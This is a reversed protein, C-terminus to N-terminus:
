RRDRCCFNYFYDMESKQQLINSKNVQFCCYKPSTWLLYSLGFDFIVFIANPCAVDIKWKWPQFYDCNCWCCAVCSWLTAKRPVYWTLLPPCYLLSLSRSILLHKLINSSFTLSIISISTKTNKRVLECHINVIPVHGIETPLRIRRQKCCDLKGLRQM